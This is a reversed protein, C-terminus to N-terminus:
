LFAKKLMQYQHIAIIATGQYNTHADTFWQVGYKAVMEKDHKSDFIFREGYNELALGQNRIRLDWVGQSKKYALLKTNDLLPLKKEQALAIIVEYYPAIVKNRDYSYYEPYDFWTSTELIIKINPNERYILDILKVLYEKFIQPSYHKADNLGYSIFVVDTTKIKDQVEKQFRGNETIFRKIYDGGEAYNFVMGKHGPINENLFRQQLAELKYNEDKVYSISRDSAGMLAIVINGKEIVEKEPIVGYFRENLNFEINIEEQCGGQPKGGAKFTNEGATISENPHFDIDARVSELDKM